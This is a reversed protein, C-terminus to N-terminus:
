DCFPPRHFYGLAFHLNPSEDLVDPVTPLVFRSGIEVAFLVAVWEPHSRLGFDLRDAAVAFRKRLEMQLDLIQDHRAVGDTM